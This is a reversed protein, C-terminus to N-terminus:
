VSHRWDGATGEGCPWCFSSACDAPCSSLFVKTSPALSIVRAWKIARLMRPLAKENVSAEINIRTRNLLAIEICGPKNHVLLPDRDPPGLLVPGRRAQGEVPGVAIFEVNELAGDCRGGQACIGLQLVPERM